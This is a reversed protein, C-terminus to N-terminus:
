IRLVTSLTSSYCSTKLISKHCGAKVLNDLGCCSGCPFDINCKSVKDEVLDQFGKTELCIKGLTHNILDLTSICTDYSSGLLAELRRSIEEDNQSLHHSDKIVDAWSTSNSVAAFLLECENLFITRQAGLKAHFRQVEKVHRRYTVFPQFTMEYNEVASILLPVIALGLGAASMPDAM